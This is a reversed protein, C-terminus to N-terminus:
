QYSRGGRGLRKEEGRLLRAINTRHTFVTALAVAISFALITGFGALQRSVTLYVFLPLSFAAALSALSVIRFLAMLLLWVAFSLGLAAPCIGLFVGAATAVGKGGRFRFFPNFIHGAVAAAGTLMQLLVLSALSGAELGALWPVAYVPAFGKLVDLGLVLAGAGPGLVRFANTAGLNGSGHQRLDIGRLLRGTLYSTPFSGTLYAALIWVPWYTM